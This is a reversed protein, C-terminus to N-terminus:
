NDDYIWEKIIRWMIVEEYPIVFTSQDVAKNSAQPNAANFLTVEICPKGNVIRHKLYCAHEKNPTPDKVLDM